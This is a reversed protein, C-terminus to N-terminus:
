PHRVSRASAAGRGRGGGTLYKVGPRHQQIEIIDNLVPVPPLAKPSSLTALATMMKGPDLANLLNSLTGAGPAPGPALGTHLPGHISFASGGPAGRASDRRVSAIPALYSPPGALSTFTDTRPTMPTGPGITTTTHGSYSSRAAQRPPPPPLAAQGSLSV